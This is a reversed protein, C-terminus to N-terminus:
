LHFHFDQTNAKISFGWFKGHRKEKNRLKLQENQQKTMKKM